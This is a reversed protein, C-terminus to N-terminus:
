YTSRRKGGDICITSGTVYSARDSCLFAAVAAFEEASGMRGMPIAALYNKMYDEKSQGTKQIRSEMLEELRETAIAGPALCNVTVNFQALEDSLTKLMSTVASRMANSVALNAIPEIVSLSTVCILRGWKQEKMHPLFGHNLHAIMQFLQHFGKDWDDLTTESASSPKPGGTNLVLIDIGGVLKTVADILNTREDMNTLDCTKHHVRAKTEKRIDAAVEELLNEQRACLIPEAGERALELAIAKGIGKSAGCVLAKKGKIGFDM